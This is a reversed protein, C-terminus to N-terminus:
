RSVVLKRIKTYISIEVIWSFLLMFAFYALWRVIDNGIFDLYTADKMLPIHSIYMVYSIPSFILFPRFLANFGIWSFRMWVVSAIMVVMAFCYHRFELVPHFGLLLDVGERKQVLVEFLLICSPAFLGAIPLILCYYNTLKNRRYLDSLYVGTWWIGLYAFLRPVFTPYFTYCITAVLVAGYVVCHRTNTSKIFYVIPFYMMYFWWEYSLSWLPTNGMYPAALVNPKVKDWDQLMFINQLLNVISPDTLKGANYSVLFYSVFFVIVLPVYIRLVRKQFYGRFSKDQGVQYSYNIVFGSLLFFLIVAEQGFRLLFNFDYGFLRLLENPLTHHLVVYFAAFGRLAELKELKM